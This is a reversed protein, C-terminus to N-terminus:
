EAYRSAFLRARHCQRSRRAARPRPRDARPQKGRRPAGHETNPQLRARSRATAVRRSNVTALLDVYCDSKPKPAAEYSVSNRNFTEAPWGGGFKDGVVRHIKYNSLLACFESVVIAPSFPPKVERLADIVVIGAAFDKHAICLTMSDSGSGGAPDVFAQYSIGSEPPREFVGASVCAQLAERSVFGEMDSRFQALYDAAARVPDAALKEDIFSQPVSPNMDRTTAQWILVPDGDKGFHKQYAQWLAGKRAHPSSAVLMM